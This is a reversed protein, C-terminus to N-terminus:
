HQGSEFGREVTQQSQQETRCQRHAADDHGQQHHDQHDLTRHYARLGPVRGIDRLSVLDAVEQSM